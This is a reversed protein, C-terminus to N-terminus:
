GGSPAAEQARALFQRTTQDIQGRLWEAMSIEEALNREFIAIARRDGLLTAASILVRYAAIEMQEFAYATTAGKVVEDTALLGAMAQGTGTVRGLTDQLLSPAEDAVQLLHRLERAQRETEVIHEDMRDLLAPYDELRGAMARMMGLAQEEMAHADRLWAIYQKRIIDM